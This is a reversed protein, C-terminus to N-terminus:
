NWGERTRMAIYAHENPASRTANPTNPTTAHPSVRIEGFFKFEGIVALNQLTRQFQEYESPSLNGAEKIEAAM